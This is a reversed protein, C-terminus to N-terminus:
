EKLLSNDINASLWENLRQSISRNSISPDASLLSATIATLQPAAISHGTFVDYMGSPSLSLATSSALFTHTPVEMALNNHAGYAYIVGPQPQPFRNNQARKADHASIIIAGQEVLKNVLAELIKDSPGSLSLNLVNPAVQVAADLALALTLTSCRGGGNEKQWCGRYHHLNAEKTLGKVPSKGSVDNAGLLGMVATGHTENKGDGIGRVFNQYHIDSRKLAPHSLDAGTDIVVIDVGNGLNPLVISPSIIASTNRTVTSQTLTDFENFVQVWKVREDQELRMLVEASPSEIVICHVGLSRIPWEDAHQLQYDDVLRKTARLLIPDKAYDIVASYGPGQAGFQKRIGRPDEIVVLLPQKFSSNDVHGTQEPTVSCAQVVLVFIALFFHKIRINRKSM